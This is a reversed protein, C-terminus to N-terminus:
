AEVKSASFAGKINAHFHKGISDATMLAHATDPPVNAYRWTDGSKFQVHLAREDSSYGVAAIANSKVPQLNM